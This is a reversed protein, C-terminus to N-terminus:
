AAPLVQFHHTGDRGLQAVLGFEWDLYAQMAARPADTGEYPRRYRDTRESLRGADGTELPLGAAVWAPTGGDLVALPKATYRHLDGAALRALRGDPCTLVIRETAPLKALVTPLDTRLVWRAGPIHGKVHQASTGVDLLVTRGAALRTALV